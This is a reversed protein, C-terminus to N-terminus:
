NITNKYKLGALNETRQIKGLRTTISIENEKLIYIPQFISLITLCVIVTFTIIKITSLLLNIIFKM